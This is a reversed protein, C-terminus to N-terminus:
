RARHTSWRARWRGAGSCSSGSSSAARAASGTALTGAILLFSAFVITYADVIWQLESTSAGIERVLTPLAVNVITGDIGVVLLGLCLVGLVYWRKPDAHVEAPASVTQVM